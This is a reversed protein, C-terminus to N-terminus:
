RIEYGLKFAINFIFANLDAYYGTVLLLGLIILLGAAIKNILESKRQIFKLYHPAKILTFSVFLFPLSIGLSYVFLMLGGQSASGTSSALALIGGLVAGVCPTWTLAFIVGVFFSRIEHLKDISKPLKVKFDRKLFGLKLIGAFELGFALLLVGTFIQFERAYIKFFSGIGGVAVGLLTFVISFGLIYFISASWIKARYQKYGNERLDSLSVGTVYSVYVPLLPIVCPAFFSVLGSFFAIPLTIENAIM